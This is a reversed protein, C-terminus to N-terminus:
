DTVRQIADPPLRAILEAVTLGSVPHRWDPAVDKLPCLVFLRSQMRPHPLEPPGKEVRGDYDIIDLDLTRPANPVSRARGFMAETEHLVALLQAPDLRTDIRAVTNIFPPDEPDPWAPTRYFGSQKEITIARQALLLLAQKLTEAPTGVPSPLNAGLAILIV